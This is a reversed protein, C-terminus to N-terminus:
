AVKAMQRPGVAREIGRLREVAAKLQSRLGAIERLRADERAELDALEGSLRELEAALKVMEENGGAPGFFEERLQAVWGPLCGSIEAAVTEDSEGGVYCERAADYCASLCDLILRKQARTPQRPVTAAIAKVEAAAAAPRTFAEVNFRPKAARARRKAECMPCFCKEGDVRWGKQVLKKHAQGIQGRGNPFCEEARCDAGDCRVQVRPPGSQAQVDEIPM